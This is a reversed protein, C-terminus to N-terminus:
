RYQDWYQVPTKSDDHDLHCVLQHKEENIHHKERVNDEVYQYYYRRLSAPISRDLKFGLEILLDEILEFTLLELSYTLKLRHKSIPTACEVGNLSKLLSCVRESQGEPMKKLCVSRTRIVDSPVMALM